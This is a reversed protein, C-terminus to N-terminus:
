AACKILVTALLALLVVGFARALLAQAFTPVPAPRRTGSLMDYDDIMAQTIRNNM